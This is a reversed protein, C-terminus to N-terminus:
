RASASGRSGRRSPGCSAFGVVEGGAEAVFVFEGGGGGGLTKSWQALRKEYTMESLMGEPPLGGYTARSSEVHVRAVGAADDPTAERIKIGPEHGSM